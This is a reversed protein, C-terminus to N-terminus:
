PGVPHGSADMRYVPTPPAPQFCELHDLQLELAEWRMAELGEMVSNELAEPLGEARLNIILQGTTLPDSLTQALEPQFATGVLNLVALEGSGDSPELTMKFHAVDVNQSELRRQVALAFDALWADGDFLKESHLNVTANLWGLLAEGEAYIGYDLAMPQAQSQEAALLSEFWSELGEGTRASIAVIPKGPFRETLATKLAALAAEGLLDKKNIVIQDAEEIQKLYIYVVKESFTKGQTVGLIASARRPDILVNLPAITFREGYIRRLPYSVSAVLDTCSGVPEAIFLDPTQDKSLQDAADVLSNFRCCFCGGPIEEVQFGKQKLNLTDVLQQGQDNTILGVRYHRQDLFEALKAIATSKGAGLFGGVMIYRAPDPKISM